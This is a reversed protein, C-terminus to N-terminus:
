GDLLCCPISNLVFKVSCSKWTLEGRGGRGMADRVCPNHRLFCRGEGFWEQFM